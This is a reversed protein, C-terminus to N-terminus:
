YDDYLLAMIADGNITIIVGLVGLIIGIVQKRNVTVSNMLYDIIFVFLPGAVILTGILSFSLVYFMYTHLLQQFVTITNRILIIKIDASRPVDISIGFYLIIAYHSIVTILGRSLNTYVPDIGNESVYLFTLPFILQSVSIMIM